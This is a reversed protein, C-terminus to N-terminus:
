WNTALEVLEKEWVCVLLVRCSTHVMYLGCFSITVEVDFLM